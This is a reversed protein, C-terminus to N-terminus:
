HDGANGAAASGGTGCGARYSRQFQAGTVPWREGGPGEVIWDGPYAVARGEMTRLVQAEDAQWARFAGTRRYRGGGLPEHSRNFEADRVTREDGADDVVRWDGAEGHLRDGTLRTWPRRAQLRRARVTGIRYFPRARPPGGAPVVPM